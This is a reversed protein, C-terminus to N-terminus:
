AGRHTPGGSAQEREFARVAALLHEHPHDLGAVAARGSRTITVPESDHDDQWVATVSWLVDDWVLHCALHVHTWM